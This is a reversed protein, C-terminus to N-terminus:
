NWTKQSLCNCLASPSHSYPSLSALNNILRRLQEQIQRARTSLDRQQQLQVPKWFHPSAAWVSFSCFSSILWLLCHHPVANSSPGKGLWSLHMPCGTLVGPSQAHPFLQLCLLFASLWVQMLSVQKCSLYLHLYTPLKRESLFYSDAWHDQSDWWQERLYM